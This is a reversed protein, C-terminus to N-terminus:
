NTKRKVKLPVWRHRCSSTTEDTESNYFWGGSFKFVDYGFIESMSQIEQRTYLRNNEILKVCFSRSTPLLDGGKVNPKKEYKYMVLVRDTDPVDTEPQPTIKIRNNSDTEVKILGSDALKKIIVDLEDVNTSIKGETKLVDVIERITLGKIDNDIIYNSIDSQKDFQMAEADAEGLIEFDEFSAGLHKVLDYDSETLKKSNCDKSSCNKKVDEAIVPIEPQAPQLSESLLRDGNAIPELGAIKRLENITYIKEKTTDSLRESFLQKDVFEVKGQIPEYNTFLYNLASALENRKVSVYKNNFMEYSVELEQSSGLQGATKIGFLSPNQVLHAIMIDDTNRNTVEIYAKDWDNASLQKVEASKGDKHQFDIIFKKGNEGKFKEEIENIVGKKVGDPVNSGNFFTIITNPSFHNKINNLNFNKIAIDTEISVIANTYEPTPYVNYVSPFFGDYYFIKSTSDKNDKVSYREYQITKRSLLWDDNVWFKTKNKNMRVKHVPVHHYEIPQGFVNFVVEVAFANFLLHDKTIKGVFENMSDTANVQIDIPSGDQTKLGNGLVYTTKQNVIAGHIPSESYLKLLYVPYLNGIGWTVYTQDSTNKSEVPIPINQNNFELTVINANSM